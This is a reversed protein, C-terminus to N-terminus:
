EGESKTLEALEKELAAIRSDLEKIPFDALDKEVSEIFNNKLKDANEAQSKAKKAWSKFTKAKNGKVLGVNVSRNLLNNINALEVRIADLKGEIEKGLVKLKEENVFIKDKSLRSDVFIEKKGLNYKGM